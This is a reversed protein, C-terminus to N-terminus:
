YCSLGCGNGPEPNSTWKLTRTESIGEADKYQCHINTKIRDEKVEDDKM